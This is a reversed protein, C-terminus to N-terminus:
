KLLSAGDLRDELSADLSAKKSKLLDLFESMTIGLKQCAEDETLDKNQYEALIREKRDEDFGKTLIERLYTPKDLKRDKVFRNIEEYIEDPVSITMSKSM